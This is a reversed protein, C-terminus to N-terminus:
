SGVGGAIGQLAAATAPVGGGAAGPVGPAAAPGAAPKGASTIADVDTWGGDRLVERQASAIDITPQKGFAAGVQDMQVALALSSLKQQRKQQTEAPGGAGFWDFNAREPLQERTLEVYGGYADIFFSIKEGPKLADRAMQYGRDLLNTLPASGTQNVYDVTRVAGRQLEADKAFATTHSVTQAGLRGPLIGTLEAYLNIFTSMMAALATPDGGIETYVKVPDITGWLAYPHILPGGGQAFEMNSKDYGVPPSNKIAAADLARNLAQVAGIQVTRGKMLPSTPYADNASEYHYPFLLYSSFPYKRFRCRVVARSVTGDSKTGGVAVTVIAGPLVFSRTTKRPVVIDGEMELLRVNNNKDPELGKLNQPMWGGDEDDPDTGGRAAAIALNALAMWDECIIQEGLVQASHMSPMPTDLLVQKVSVPVLVPVRQTVKMVGRAESIYVNKTEMRLRGIGMGYRFSEANIRDMRGALDYQAFNSILFGEVLKDANDQDIKSPVENEDGKILAQFDVKRLYADTVEAHAKFWPGSDPFMMRRADATLVELAQAQLPLEMEAMWMKRIDDQGNPLKKHSVDPIMAVQRDIEAWQREIDSRNRKRSEAENQVYEAIYAWDRADFRRKPASVNQDSDIEILAM